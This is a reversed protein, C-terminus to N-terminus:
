AAVPAPMGIPPPAGPVGPPPPPAALAAQKAVETDLMKKAAEYWQRIKELSDEKYGKSEFENLQNGAITVCLKLDMYPNPMCKEFSEGAMLKALKKEINKRKYIYSGLIAETDPHDTMSLAQEATILGAGMWEILKNAKAAPTNPLLNTPWCKVRYVAQGLDAKTWDIEELERDGGFVVSYDEKNRKCHDALMRHGDIVLQGLDTHFLEWARNRVTHRASLEDSLHELAPAHEIGAPKSGSMALDNLGWQKEAWAILDKTRSIYEAPVAQAVVHYLAQQPPVNSELITKNSNTIKATNIKANRWVVLLPHAHFHMIEDINGNINNLLLQAGALVEPVSRSWYSRRKPLPKFWAIPFYPFPWPEDILTKGAICLVRRGDHGPNLRPDYVGDEGIGWSLPNTRDVSSSPLHWAEMIEVDDVFDENSERHSVGEPAVPAEIIAQIVEKDADRFQALLESRDIADYYYGSRPQGLRSERRSVMFRSPDIRDLILRKGAFDPYVKVGGADYIHGDFCVHQGLEGYIKADWFTGEIVKQLAQAQQQQEANGSETLILPRIRNQVLRNVSTDTISQIVNYGSVESELGVGALADRTSGEDDGSWDCGYYLETCDIQRQQRAKGQDEWLARVTRTVDKAPDENLELEVSEPFYGLHSDWWQARRV